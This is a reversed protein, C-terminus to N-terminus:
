AHSIEKNRRELEAIQHVAADTREIRAYRSPEDWSARDAM